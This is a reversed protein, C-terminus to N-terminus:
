LANPQVNNTVEIRWAPRVTARGRSTIHISGFPITGPDLRICGLRELSRLTDCYIKNGDRDHAHGARDRPLPGDILAALAVIQRVSLDLNM